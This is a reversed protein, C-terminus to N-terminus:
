MMVNMLELQRQVVLGSNALIAAAPHNEKLVANPDEPIYVPSLLTNQNPNADRLTSSVAEAGAQASPQERPSNRRNRSIPQPFERRRLTNRPGRPSVPGRISIARNMAWRVAPPRIRRSWMM